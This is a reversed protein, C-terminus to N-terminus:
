PHQPSCVARVQVWPLAPERPSSPIRSWERLVTSSGWTDKDEGPEDVLEPDHLQRRLVLEDDGVPAQPSGDGEGQAVQQVVVVEAHPVHEESGDDSDDEEGHEHLNTATSESPFPARRPGTCLPSGEVPGDRVRDSGWTGLVSHLSVLLLKAKSLGDWQWCQAKPLPTVGKGEWPMVMRGRTSRSATFFFCSVFREMLSSIWM